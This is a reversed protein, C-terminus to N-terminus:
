ICSNMIKYDYVCSCKYQNNQIEIKRVKKSFQASPMRLYKAKAVDWFCRTKLSIILTGSTQWWSPAGLFCRRIERSFYLEVGYLWGGNDRCLKVTVSLEITNCPKKFGRHLCIDSLITVRIHIQRILQIRVSERNFQICSFSSQLM